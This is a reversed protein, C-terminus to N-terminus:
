VRESMAKSLEIESFWRRIGLGSLSLVGIMIFNERGDIVRKRAADTAACLM